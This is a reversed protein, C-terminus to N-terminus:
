APQIVRATEECAAAVDAWTPEDSAWLRDFVQDATDTFGHRNRFAYRRRPEQADYGLASLRGMATTDWAVVQPLTLQDEAPADAFRGSRRDLVRLLLRGISTASAREGLHRPTQSDELAGGEVFLKVPSELSDIRTRALPTKEDIDIEIVEDAGFGLQDALTSAIEAIRGADYMVFTFQQPTVSVTAM